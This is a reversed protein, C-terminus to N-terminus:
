VETRNMIEIAIIGIVMGVVMLTIAVIPHGCVGVIAGVATFILCITFIFGMLRIVLQEYNKNM